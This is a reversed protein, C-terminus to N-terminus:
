YLLIRYSYQRVLVLGSRFFVNAEHPGDARSSRRFAQYISIRKSHTHRGPTLKYVLTAIM